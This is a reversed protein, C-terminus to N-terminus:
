KKTVAYIRRTPKDPAAAAANVTASADVDADATIPAARRGSTAGNAEAEARSAAMLEIAKTVDFGLKDLIAQRKLVDNCPLDVAWKKILDIVGDPAFDLCDLLQDMSGYELLSKVAFDDYYYEPEVGQLLEEVVEKDNIVLSNKLLYMGGPMWSLKELENYPIMKSEGHQFKRRLNGLEPIMYGVTASTRNTVKVERDKEIM